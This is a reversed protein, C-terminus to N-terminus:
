KKKIEATEAKGQREEESSEKATAEFKAGPPLMLPETVPLKDFAVDVNAIRGGDMTMRYHFSLDLKESDRPMLQLYYYGLTAGPPFPKLWREPNNIVITPRASSADFKYKIEDVKEVKKGVKTEKAVWVAMNIDGWAVEPPFGWAIFEARLAEGDGTQVRKLSTIDLRVGNNSATLVPKYAGSTLQEFAGKTVSLYEDRLRKQEESPPKKHDTEAFKKKEADLDLITEDIKAIEQLQAKYSKMLENQDRVYEEPTGTVYLKTEKEVFQKKAVALKEKIEKERVEAHHNLYFVVLGIIAVGAIVFLSFFKKM